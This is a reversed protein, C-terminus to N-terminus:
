KHAQHLEYRKNVLSCGGKSSLCMRKADGKAWKYCFFCCFRWLSFRKQKNESRIEDCLKLAIERPIGQNSAM